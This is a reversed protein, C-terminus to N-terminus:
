LTEQKNITSETGPREPMAGTQQAVIEEIGKVVQQTPLQESLPLVEIPTELELSVTAPITPADQIPGVAPKAKTRRAVPKKIKSVARSSMAATRVPVKQGPVAAAKGTPKKRTKIKLPRQKLSALKAEAQGLALKAETVEQKALRVQKKARRAALKAEKRRRRALRAQEKATLLQSEAKALRIRALDVNGALQQSTAKSDLAKM